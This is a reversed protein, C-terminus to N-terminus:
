QPSIQCFCQLIVSLKLLHLFFLFMVISFFFIFKVLCSIKQAFYLTSLTLYTTFTLLHFPVLVNSSSTLLLILLNYRHFTFFPVPSRNSPNFSKELNHYFGSNPLYDHFNFLLSLSMKFVFNDRNQPLDFLADSSSLFPLIVWFNSPLILSGSKPFPLFLTLNFKPCKGPTVKYFNQFPTQLMLCPSLIKWVCNFKVFFLCVLNFNLLASLHHWKCGLTSSDSTGNM